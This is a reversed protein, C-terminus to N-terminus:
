RIFSTVQRNQTCQQLIAIAECQLQFICFNPKIFITFVLGFLYVNIFQCFQLYLTRVNRHSNVSAPSSQELSSSDSTVFLKPNYTHSSYIELLGTLVPRLSTCDKRYTSPLTLTRLLEPFNIFGTLGQPDRLSAGHTKIGTTSQKLHQTVRNLCSELFRLFSWFCKLVQPLLDLLVHFSNMCEFCLYKWVENRSFALFSYLYKRFKLYGAESLFRTCGGLSGILEQHKISEESTSKPGQLM